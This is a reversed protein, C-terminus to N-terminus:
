RRLARVMRRPVFWWEIGVFALVAAAVAVAWPTSGFIRLAQVYLSLGLSFALFVFAISVNTQAFRLFAASEDLEPTFRHYSAPVLLFVLALVTCLIGAFAVAHAAWPLALFGPQFAVVLQFGFIAGLAPVMIRFEALVTGIKEGFGDGSVLGSQPRAMILTNAAAV